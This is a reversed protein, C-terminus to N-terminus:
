ALSRNNSLNSVDIMKILVIRLYLLLSQIIDCGGVIFVTGNPSVGNTVALIRLIFREYHPYKNFYSVPTKSNGLIYELISPVQEGM